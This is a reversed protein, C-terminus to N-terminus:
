EYRSLFAKNDINVNSLMDIFSNTTAVGLPKENKDYYVEANSQIMIYSKEMDVSKEIVPNYELLKNTFSSFEEDNITLNDCEKNISDIILMQFIKLRDVKTKSIFESFDEEVNLKSVCINIKLKINTEKIWGFISLLEEESLTKNNHSRKIELNTEHNLSDVSVGINDIKDKNLQIFERTLLSGNTVMSVYIDKSYIYDIIDQLYKCLFVEGGVLNIRGKIGVSDFYDKANDVIKKIEELSLMRRCKPVFCYVCKYNCIDIFHLNLVHYKTKNERKM